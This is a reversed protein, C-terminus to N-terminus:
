HMSKPHMQDHLHGPMAHHGHESLQADFWRHVARVFEPDGSTYDIEAGNALERYHVRLKGPQANRLEDLGPMSEGHIKAPGSFDGRAFEAAIKSLHQRILDIQIQNAPDKVVVQQLGGEEQKTFIHRTQELDFPMVQAGRRAVEEVREPTVAGASLTLLLLPIAGLCVCGNKRCHGDGFAFRKLNRFFSHFGRYLALTFM